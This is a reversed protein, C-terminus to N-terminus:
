ALFFPRESAVESPTGNRREHQSVHHLIVSFNLGQMRKSEGKAVDEASRMVNTTSQTSHKPALISISEVMSDLNIGLLICAEITIRAEETV